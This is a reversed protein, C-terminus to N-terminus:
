RGARMFTEDMRDFLLNEPAGGSDKLFLMRVLDNLTITMILMGHTRLIAASATEGGKDIGNRAIIIAVRRLGNPFLYKETLNVENQTIPDEYNKIEFVVYRSSFDSAIMVWFSDISPRIRAILDMRSHGNETRRQARISALGSSFLFRVAQECLQEFQIAGPRGSPTELLRDAIDSGKRLPDNLRSIGDSQLVTDSTLEELREFIDPDKAMESLNALSWIKTSATELPRLSQSPLDLTVIVISGDYGRRRAVEEIHTIAEAIRSSWDERWRMMRFAVAKAQTRGRPTFELDPWSQYEEWEEQDSPEDGGRNSSAEGIEPQSLIREILLHWECSLSQGEILLEKAHGM